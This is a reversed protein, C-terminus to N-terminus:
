HDNIIKLLLDYNSKGECDFFLLNGDNEINSIM